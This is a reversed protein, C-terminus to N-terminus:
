RLFDVLSQPLIKAGVALASQYVNEATKFDILAAPINLDENAALDTTITTKNNELMSKAMEYTSMRTGIQTQQQLQKAHISDINALGTNSVYTLDPNPKALEEKLAILQNFVDLVPSTSGAITKLPGFVDVGTLNISDNSPNIGGQKIQMSIKNIDGNYVVVDQVKGTVPDTVTTRKLPETKDMQGSFVYRDGIKTNGISIAQEILGDIESAITNLSDIPKTGDAGVTLEKMRIMISSLDSMASDTTNMWSLSDNVNQTYQENIALNSNFRLSRITKIPDDSPKHIAKGDAIQQQLTSQKELSGNLSTLYNNTMM